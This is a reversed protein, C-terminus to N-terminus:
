GIVECEEIDWELRDNKSLDDMDDLAKKALEESAFVVYTDIGLYAEWHVLVYVKM